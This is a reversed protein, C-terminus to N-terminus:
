NSQDSSTEADEVYDIEDDDMDHANDCLNISSLASNNESNILKAPSRREMSPSAFPTSMKGAPDEQEQDRDDQDRWDHEDVQAVVEDLLVLNM